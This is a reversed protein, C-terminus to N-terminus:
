CCLSCAMGDVALCMYTGFQLTFIKSPHKVGLVESNQRQCKAATSIQEGKKQCLGSDPQHADTQINQLCPRDSNWESVCMHCTDGRNWKVSRVHVLQKKDKQWHNIQNLTPADHCTLM